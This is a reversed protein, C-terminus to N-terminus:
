RQSIVLHTEYSFNQRATISSLLNIAEKTGLLQFPWKPIETLSSYKLLARLRNIFLLDFKRSSRIITWFIATVKRSSCIIARFNLTFWWAFRIIMQFIARILVIPTVFICPFKTAIEEFLWSNWRFENANSKCLVTSAKTIPCAASEKYNGWDRVFIVQDCPGIVKHIHINEVTNCWRMYERVM